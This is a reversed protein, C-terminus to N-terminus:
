QGTAEAQILRSEVNIGNVSQVEFLAEFGRWPVKRAALAQLQNLDVASEASQMLGTDRTGAVVLHQNGGPGRFSALYAFDRYRETTGHAEGAESVWTEGTMGDILEDYSAGFSYRSGALVVDMLSGLASLYGIYVIHTTKISSPDLESALTLSVHKGSAVLVPLVDRLAQASSTPLYGLNLDAFQEALAPNAIFGQELDQRSNVNFDRVLRHIDGAKDREGFIYYDGLVLQVPLDDALLPAWLPSDRVAAVRKDVPPRELAALLLVLCAVLLVCILVAAFRERGTSPLWRRWGATAAAVKDPVVAELSLRYEGRQITLRAAAQPAEDRYFDELRKRLKHVAVRVTADQAVDFDAGRGFGDVAVEIEKPVRGAAQCAVLYDFLRQLQTARGFINSARVREVEATFAAAPANPASPEPM